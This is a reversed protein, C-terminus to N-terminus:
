KKEEEAKQEEKNEQKKKLPMATFGLKQIAAKLEKPSTKDARYEITVTKAPLDVKLGTVGKEFAINSEIRQQCNECTMSVLYTVTQKKNDKAMASTVLGFLLIAMWMVNKAKM